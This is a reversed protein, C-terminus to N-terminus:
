ARGDLAARGDRGARPASGTPRAVGPLAQRLRGLVENMGAMRLAFAALSENGYFPERRLAFLDSDVANVGSETTCASAYRLAQLLVKHRPLYDGARGNPYAFTTPAVGGRRALDRTSQEIELEAEEASAASLVQHTVTHAGITFLRDSALRSIESWSLMRDEPGLVASSGVDLAALLEHLYRTRDAAAMKKMASVAMASAAQRQSKTELPLVAGGQPLVVQGRAAREFANYVAVFWLPEGSDVPGTAVYITAPLGYRALVRCAELNDAYGDDFTIVVQNRHAIAGRALQSTADGMSVVRYRRSLHRVREEFASVTLAGDADPGDPRVRHAYLIRISPPTLLRSLLRVLWPGGLRYLAAKSLRVM